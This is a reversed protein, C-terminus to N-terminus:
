HKTDSWTMFAISPRTERFWLSSACSRPSRSTAVRLNSVDNTQAADGPFLPAIELPADLLDSEPAQVQLQEITQLGAVAACLKIASAPYFYEADVRYGSRQLAAHGLRNTVVEAVLVQVRFNEPVILAPYLKETRAHLLPALNSMQNPSQTACGCFLTVGGLFTISIRSM